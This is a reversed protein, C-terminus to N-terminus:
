AVVLFGKRKLELAILWLVEDISRFRNEFCDPADVIEYFMSRGAHYERVIFGAVAALQFKKYKPTESLKVISM